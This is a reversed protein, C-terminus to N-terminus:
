EATIVPPLEDNVRKAEREQKTAYHMKMALSILKHTDASLSTEKEKKVQQKAKAVVMEYLEVMEEGGESKTSFRYPYRGQRNETKKNLYKKVYSFLIM